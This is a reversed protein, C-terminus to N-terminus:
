KMMVYIRYRSSVSRIKYTGASLLSGGNADCSGFGGGWIIRWDM